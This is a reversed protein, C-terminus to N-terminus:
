GPRKELYKQIAVRTYPEIPLELADELSVWVYEEAEFNLRVDMSDTRCVHDFFIFHRKRWFADDFIFEQFALFEVDHVDLNTEEKIERILADEIREGLEIHGGPVVYKGRWKHSKTLFLKGEPNFILAGVTPEPFQQKAMRKAKQESETVAARRAM